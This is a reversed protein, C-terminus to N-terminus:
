PTEELDAGCGPCCDTVFGLALVWRRLCYVCCRDRSPRPFPLATTADTM